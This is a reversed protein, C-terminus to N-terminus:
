KCTREKVRDTLWGSVSELKEKRYRMSEPYGYGLFIRDDLKCEYQYYYWQVCSEWAKCAAECRKESKWSQSWSSADRADEPPEVALVSQPTLHYRSSM